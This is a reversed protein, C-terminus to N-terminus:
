TMEEKNLKESIVTSIKNLQNQIEKLDDHKCKGNGITLYIDGLTNLMEEKNIEWMVVVNREQRIINEFQEIGSTISGDHWKIELVRLSSNLLFERLEKNELIEKGTFKMIDLMEKM